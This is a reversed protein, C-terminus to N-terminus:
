GASSEQWSLEYLRAYHGGQALLDEHTGREIIRGQDLVIIQDAHQITSLRHAIILTTRGATLRKLAAQVLTETETDIHSTAEDLVLIAPDRALARAFSLLQRQGASLTQGREYLPEEYGRPLKEIFTDAGLAKCAAMVQEMSIRPDGLSINTAVDGAFLFVDQQVVAIQERLEKQKVSRVDCGDILIRGRQVDYFRSILNIISSKGAGTAGVFAVTQGPKIELNIDRLVWNDANYAFWVNEFRIEGKLHSCIKPSPPDSVAPCEDLLAVLRESSTIASQLTNLQQTLHNIPQFLQRIYSLFAYLVGFPILDRVVENGGYWMMLAVGLQGFLTLIQGYAQTLRNERLNAVLYDRNVQVFADMQRKERTFLQITRMGALNEALYANLVALQNRAARYADRLAHRFWTSVAVILPVITLSVIALRTDLQCMVIIIGIITCVDRLSQVLMGSFLQNIAETDNCVRTVLRGVANRDFFSLSLSQLHAFVQMRLDYIVKRAITQLVLAQSYNLGFAAVMLIFYVGLLRLLAGTNPNPVNIYSDIAVKVLYPQALDAGIGGLLLMISLVFLRWYPLCLALMRLLVRADTKTQPANDAVSM